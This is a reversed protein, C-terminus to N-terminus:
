YEIAGDGLGQAQLQQAMEQSILGAAVAGAIGYKRVVDIISEDFVVYNRTGSGVNRSVQDLYRIGPVGARRLADSFAAADQGGGFMRKLDEGTFDRDNVPVARGGMRPAMREADDQKLGTGLYKRNGADDVVTYPMFPRMASQVADGQESLPKDWDLFDEPNANINVEYMHGPSAPKVGRELWGEATALKKKLAPGLFRDWSSNPDLQTLENRYSRILEEIDGGFDQVDAAVDADHGELPIKKGDESKLVFGKSLSNRYEKAVDEAEAFYLGHGYAQAGEGKGIHELSFKDFDHPSGHFARIGKKGAKAVADGVGPMFGLAALGLGAAGMGYNGANFDRRADDIALTDGVGPVFDILASVISAINQQSRTDDSLSEAAGWGIQDRWSPEYSRVEPTPQGTTPRRVELPPMLHGALVNQNPAPQNMAALLGSPAPSALRFAKDMVRQDRQQGGPLDASALLEAIERLDM